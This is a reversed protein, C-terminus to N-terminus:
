YGSHDAATTTSTAAGSSGSSTTSGTSSGSAGAETYFAGQMGMAGHFDCSFRLMGDDPVTVEVTAKKGPEVQQDVSGDDLTFTHANAGENALEVTVTAGPAAKIFTPSFYNDDLEMSLKATSGDASIDKTGEDNVQGELKVPASGGAGATTTAKSGSATTTGTADSGSSSGCGAALLVLTVAMAAVLTRTRTTSIM